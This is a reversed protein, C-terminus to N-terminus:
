KKVPAFSLGQQKFVAKIASIANPGVGHLSSIEKESFGSLQKLTHIGANALARQAPQSLKVPLAGPIDKKKMTISKDPLSLHYGQDARM